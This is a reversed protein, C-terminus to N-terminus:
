EEDDVVEHPITKPPPEEGKAEDRGARYEDKLADISEAARRVNRAGFLGRLARLFGRGAKRSLSPEDVRDSMSGLTRASFPARM